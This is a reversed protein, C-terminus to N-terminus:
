RGGRGNDRTDDTDIIIEPPKLPRKKPGEKTGKRTNFPPLPRDKQETEQEPDTGASPTSVPKEQETGPPPVAKAGRTNPLDEPPGDEPIPPPTGQRTDSEGEDEDDTDPEIYETGDGEAAPIQETWSEPLLSLFWQWATWLWKFM